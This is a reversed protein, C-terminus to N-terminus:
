TGVRWLAFVDFRGLDFSQPVYEVMDQFAWGDGEYLLGLGVGLGAVLGVYVACAVFRLLEGQVVGGALEVRGYAEAASGEGVGEVSLAVADLGTGNERVSGISEWSGGRTSNLGNREGREILDRGMRLLRGLWWRM